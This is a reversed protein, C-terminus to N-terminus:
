GAHQGAWVQDEVLARRSSLLIQQVDLPELTAGVFASSRRGRGHRDGSDQEKLAGGGSAPPVRDSAASDAGPGGSRGRPAAPRAGSRRSRHRPRPSPHLDVLDWTFSDRVSRRRLLALSRVSEDVRPVAPRIRATGPGHREGRDGADPRRGAAVTLRRDHRRGRGVPQGVVDRTREQEHCPRLARVDRDPAVQGVSPEGHIDLKGPM